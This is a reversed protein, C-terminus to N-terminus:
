RTSFAMRMFLNSEDMGLALIDIKNTKNENQILTCIIGTWPSKFAAKVELASVLQVFEKAESSDNISFKSHGYWMDFMLNTAEGVVNGKWFISYTEKM